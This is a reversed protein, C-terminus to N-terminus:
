TQSYTEIILTITHETEISLGRNGERLSTNSYMHANTNPRYLWPTVPPLQAHNSASRVTCRGARGRKADVM